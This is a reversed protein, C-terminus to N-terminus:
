FKVVLRFSAGHIRMTPPAGPVLLLDTANRRALKPLPVNKLQAAGEETEALAYIQFKHLMM